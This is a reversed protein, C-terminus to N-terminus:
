PKFFMKDRSFTSRMKVFGIEILLKELERWFSGTGKSLASKAFCIVCEKNHLNFAQRSIELDYRGWKVNELKKNCTNCFCRPYM